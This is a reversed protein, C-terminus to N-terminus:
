AAASQENPQLDALYDVARQAHAAASFWVGLKKASEEVLWIPIQPLWLTRAVRRRPFARVTCTM